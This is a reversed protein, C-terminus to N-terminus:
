RSIEVGTAEISVKAAVSPGAGEAQKHEVDKPRAEKVVVRGELAVPQGASDKPVFFSYGAFTVHVSQAGQKLELWCGKNECVKEITGELRVAKGAEPRALVEELKSPKLGALKKGYVMANDAAAGQALFALALVAGNLRSTLKM